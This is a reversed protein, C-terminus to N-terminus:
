DRLVELLKQRATQVLPKLQSNTLVLPPLKVEQPTRQAKFRKSFLRTAEQTVPDAQATDRKAKAGGFLPHLDLAAARRERVASGKEMWGRIDGLM